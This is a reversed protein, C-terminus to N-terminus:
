AAKEGPFGLGHKPPGGGLVYQVTRRSSRTLTAIREQSLGLEALWLILYNSVNPVEFVAGALSASIAEANLKGLLEALEQRKGARAIYLRRGSMAFVIKMAVDLGVAYILAILSQQPDFTKRWSTDM